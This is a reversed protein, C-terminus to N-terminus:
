LLDIFALLRERASADLRQATAPAGDHWFADDTWAVRRLLDDLDKASGNTFYPHKAYLRRLSPPRTGQTHVYPEVGTKEYGDRGWVIPGAPAFIGAEWATPDVRTSADDAIRRAAHCSECRAAFLEAGERELETFGQRGATAPNPAHAFEMFFAMLAERLEVPSLTPPLEGLEEIWAVEDRTLSFWPDHGNGRNAAVFENDVMTAMDPDLARSFHPRNNFLGLLPKTVAHVDGRGTYHIRGDGYGEFHCTECTFRSSMGDGTNWPAILTTFVLAEGLRVRPDLADGPVAVMRTHEGDDVIWADLLPNAAISGAVATVGPAFPRADVHPEGVSAGLTWELTARRDGGYGTVDVRAHGDVVALALWKPTVVGHQSVDHAVLREANGTKPLRYLYVYSDVWGFGNSRDLARDEVGGAAIVIGDGNAVPPAVSWMPGDHVIEARAPMRPVGDDALAYVHLSRDRLCDVVLHGAGSALAMPGHCADFREHTALTGDARLRLWHLGGRHDDVAYITRNAGTALARVGTVGPVAVEGVRQLAGDNVRYRVLTSSQAGAVVVEDDAIAVIAVPEAAAPVRARESGDVALLVVADVGRLVGVFGREGLAVVAHPNPGTRRMGPQAAAFDEARRRTEEFEHLPQLRASADDTTGDVDDVARELPERRCGPASALASAIALAVFPARSGAAAPM